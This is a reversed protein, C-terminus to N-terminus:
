ARPHAKDYVEMLKEIELHTYKQTTSLSAHGLLEQIARLDAGANLMHTAFSHRISHPSLNRSIACMRIYRDLIRRVSRDTLRGGRYNWLLAEPAPSPKSDALIASRGHLYAQLASKAKGGFPVVREKKGKGYIRVTEAALDVHDVNLAVLEGVRIGTSYLFELIFQDRAGLPDTTDPLDLLNFMEDVTFHGPLKKEQRPTATLKAPNTKLVGERCLYRFFSRLAALKRAMSSKQLGRRHLYALYSRITLNDVEKPTISAADRSMYDESLFALFQELDIGYNRLTHRSADKEYHLVDLFQDMYKKM